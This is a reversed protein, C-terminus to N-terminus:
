KSVKNSYRSLDVIDVTRPEKKEKLKEYDMKLNIINRKQKLNQTELTLVKIELNDIKIQLRKIKQKLSIVTDPVKEQGKIPKSKM